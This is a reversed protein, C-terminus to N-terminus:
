SAGIAKSIKAQELHMRTPAHWLCCLFLFPLTTFVVSGKKNKTASPPTSGGVEPNHIRRELGDSSGLWM